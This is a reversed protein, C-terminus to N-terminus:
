LNLIAAAEFTDAPLATTELQFSSVEVVAWDCEGVDTVPLGYNGCAVAKLGSLSIAEAVLKVVSSKGKSGTVALLRVGRSKLLEVGYQLESVVKIAPSTVVLDYGEAVDAEWGREKLSKEVAKGSAGYGLVLAKM